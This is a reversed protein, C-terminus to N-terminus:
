ILKVLRWDIELKRFSGNVGYAEQKLDIADCFSDINNKLSRVSGERVSLPYLDLKVQMQDHSLLVDRMADLELKFMAIMENMPIKGGYELPLMERDILNKVDEVSKHLFVRKRMKASM